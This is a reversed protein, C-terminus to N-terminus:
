LAIQYIDDRALGILILLVFSIFLFKFRFFARKIAAAISVFCLEVVAFFYSNRCEPLFYFSVKNLSQKIKHTFKKNEIKADACVGFFKIIKRLTNQILCASTSQSM